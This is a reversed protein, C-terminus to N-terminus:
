ADAGLFRQRLAQGNRYARTRHNCGDHSACDDFGCTFDTLFRGGLLKIAWTEICEDDADPGNLAVFMVGLPCGCTLSPGVSRFKGAFADTYVKDRPKLGTVAYAQAVADGDILFGANRM